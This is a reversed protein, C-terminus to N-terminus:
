GTGGAIVVFGVMQEAKIFIAHSAPWQEIRPLVLPVLMELEIRRGESELSLGGRSLPRQVAEVQIVAHLKFCALEPHFQAQIGLVELRHSRM